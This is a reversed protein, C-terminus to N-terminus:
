SFFIRMVNDFRKRCLPCATVSSACKACAVIHGCPVFVTNYENSYCIKCLKSDNAKSQDNPDLLLSQSSQISSEITKLIPTMSASALVNQEMASINAYKRKVSEIYEPGKVLRVYDCKPLWLAHHEWPVYEDDWESLKGGCSFCIVRDGQGSYFLGADAMIAPTQKMYKPWEEFTKIRDTEVAYQPYKIHKLTIPELIDSQNGNPYEAFSGNRVELGEFGLSGCIDYSLPPLLQDLEHIPEIPKNNTQRRKLLPCNPSWRKHEDVEKDGVEWKKLLVKCFYCKVADDRGVSYFGTKALIRPQIFDHPWEINNFTELRNEESCMDLLWPNSSNSTSAVILIVILNKNNNQVFIQLNLVFNFTFLHAHSVNNLTMSVLKPPKMTQKM